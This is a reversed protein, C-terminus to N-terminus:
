LDDEGRRIGVSSRVHGRYLRSPPGVGELYGSGGSLTMALDVVEIAKQTVFRKTIQIERALDKLEEFPLTAM